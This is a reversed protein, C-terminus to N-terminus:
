QDLKYGGKLHCNTWSSHLEIYTYKLAFVAGRCLDFATYNGLIFLRRGEVEFGALDFSHCKLSKIAEGETMSTEIGDVGLESLSTGALKTAADFFRAFAVYRLTKDFPLDVEEQHSLLDLVNYYIEMTDNLIEKLNGSGMVVPLEFILFRM